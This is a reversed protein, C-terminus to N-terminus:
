PPDTLNCSVPTSQLAVPLNLDLDSDFNLDMGAQASGALWAPRTPVTM